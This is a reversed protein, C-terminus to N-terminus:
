KQEGPGKKAVKESTEKTKCLKRVRFGRDMGTEGGGGEKEKPGRKELILLGKRKIGNDGRM